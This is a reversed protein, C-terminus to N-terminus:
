VHAAYWHVFKENAWKLYSSHILPCVEENAIKLRSSHILPCVEENALQLHSSPILPCVENALKLHSSLMSLQSFLTSVIASKQEGPMTTHLSYTQSLLVLDVASVLLTGQGLEVMLLAALSFDLDQRLEPVNHVALGLLLLSQRGLSRQARVMNCHPCSLYCLTSSGTARAQRAGHGLCLPSIFQHTSCRHAIHKLQWWHLMQATHLGNPKTTSSQFM